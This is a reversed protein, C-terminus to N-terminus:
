SNVTDSKTVGVLLTWTRKMAASRSAPVLKSSAKPVLPTRSRPYTCPATRAPKRVPSIDRARRGATVENALDVPSLILHRLSRFLRSDFEFTESLLEGVVRYAARLYNRSNQGCTACYEGTKSSGCNSCISQAPEGFATQESM